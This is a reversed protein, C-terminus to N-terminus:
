TTTEEDKLIENLIDRGRVALLSVTEGEKLDNPFASHPLDLVRGDPLQISVLDGSLATVTVSIPQM